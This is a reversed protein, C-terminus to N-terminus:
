LEGGMWGFFVWGGLINGLEEGKTIPIRVPLLTEEKQMVLNGDQPM